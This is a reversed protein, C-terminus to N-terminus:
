ESGGKTKKEEVPLTRVRKELYSDKDRLRELYETENKGPYLLRKDLDSLEQEQLPEELPKNTYTKWIHRIENFCYMCLTNQRKYHGCSPCKNLHHMMQLQKKGPAYQRQRKKQHSVKKKPVALVIGNDSQYGEENNANGFRRQLMELLTRPIMVNSAGSGGGIELRPFVQTAREFLLRGCSNISFNLAM